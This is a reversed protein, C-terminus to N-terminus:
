PAVRSEGMPRRKRRRPVDLQAIARGTASDQVRALGSVPGAYVLEGGEDGGGPGLDIVWDASAIFDLYDMGLDGCSIVLAPNIERLRAVTLSPDIEDAVALIRM